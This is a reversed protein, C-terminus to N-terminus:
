LLIKPGYTQLKEGDKTYSLTQNGDEDQMNAFTINMQKMMNEIKRNKNYLHTIANSKEYKMFKRIHTPEGLKRFKECFKEHDKKKEYKEDIDMEENLDNRDFEQLHWYM